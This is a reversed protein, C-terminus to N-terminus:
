TLTSPRSYRRCRHYGSMSIKEAFNWYAPPLFRSEMVAFHMLLAVGLAYLLSDGHPITM